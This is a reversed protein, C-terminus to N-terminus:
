RAHTQKGKHLSSIFIIFRDIIRKKRRERERERERRKCLSIRLQKKYINLQIKNYINKQRILIHNHTPTHIYINYM